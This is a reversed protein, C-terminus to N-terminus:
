EPAAHWCHDNVDIPDVLRAEVLDVRRGLHGRRDRGAPPLPRSPAGIAAVVYVVASMWFHRM